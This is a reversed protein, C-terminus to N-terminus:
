DAETPSASTSTTVTSYNQGVEVHKDLAYHLTPNIMMLIAAICMVLAFWLVALRKRLIKIEEDAPITYRKISKKITSERRRPLLVVTGPRVPYKEMIQLCDQCFVQENETERGCKMCNMAM